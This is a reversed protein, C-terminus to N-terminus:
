KPLPMGITESVWKRDAESLASQSTNLTEGNDL